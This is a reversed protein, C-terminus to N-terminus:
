FYCGKLFFLGLEDFLFLFVFNVEIDYVFGLKGVKCEVMLCFGFVKRVVCYDGMLINM